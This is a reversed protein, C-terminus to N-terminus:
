RWASRWSSGLSIWRVNAPTPTDGVLDWGDIKLIVESADAGVAITQLVSAQPLPAAGASRSLVYGILPASAALGSAVVFTRRSITM